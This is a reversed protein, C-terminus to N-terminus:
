LIQKMLTNKQPTQSYSKDLFTISTKDLYESVQPLFLEIFEAFFTGLLQKFLQDHNVMTEGSHTCPDAAILLSAPALEAFM